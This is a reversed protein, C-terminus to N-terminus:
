TGFNQKLIMFDDLDVDGDGDFDGEARTMGTLGFHQKLAAFDDLDVDGDGDADGPQLDSGAGPSPPAASWNLPGPGWTIGAARHLADGGGDASTPWPALDDYTVADEIIRPTYYPEDDPPTDPRQLELREGANNLRGDWGGVLRVSADIGYADRFAAVRSANDVKDPNFPLVVLREGAALITEPDFAYDVGKALRWDTLDVDAATRNHIELFEWDYPEPPGPNYMIESIVVGPLRPGANPGGLTLATMPYLEGTGDPWRGHSENNFAAGFEVHDVFRLLTGASDAAMLWVDEGHAGDLAFDTPLGSANFDYEDFVIYEGPALLTGDPIRFKRYTKWTDSLFWGSLDVTAASVNLLEISDTPDLDTHTLVENVVIDVVPGVGAAGPSGGYETSSRWADSDNPDIGFDARELSAGRGDARGPWNGGDSYTMTLFPLGAATMALTEGGNALLGDYEGAVPLGTGYRAEFAALNGVLVMREGAPLTTVASDAFDFTIGDSFAIFSLDVDDNGTNIIETFEFDDAVVDVGDPPAPPNYMIEAIALTPGGEPMFGAEVVASTTPSVMVVAKVMVTGTLTVPGTYLAASASTRPDTGDTTYIIIGMGNPNTMVLQFGPAYEGGYQNFEPADISPFLDVSRMQEIVYGTRQPLYQTLIRDRESAWEANRTWVYPAGQPDGERDNWEFMSDGWRASEGIIATDIEAARANFRAIGAAPSLPGDGLMLQQARDAWRRRFTANTILRRYMRVPGVDNRSDTNNWRTLVETSDPWRSAEDVGQGLAAESDWTHFTFPILPPGGAPNRRCFTYWNKRPFDQRNYAWLTIMYDIFQDVDLYQELAALEADSIPTVTSTGYGSSSCDFWRDLMYNYAIRNGEKLTGNYDCGGLTGKIVDYEDKNGGLHEAAFSDDPREIAEYLGWYVGNLYLHVFRGRVGVNGTARFADHLFIDRLYLSYEGTDNLWSIGLDSGRTADRLWSDGWNARLVITDYEDVDPDDFFPYNLKAPGYDGKFLIRFSQKDNVAPWRALEGMIRGAANVSFGEEWGDPDILEMSTPKEWFINSSARMISNPYMGGNPDWLDDPDFTLAVTPISTLATTMQPGYTTDYVVDPDMEYDAPRSRRDYSSSGSAGAYWTGPFDRGTQDDTQDLVDALFIYTSTVPEADMYGSKFAAARVVTTTAITIPAVYTTGHSFTPETGDLTYRITVDPTDCSLALAFPSDYFGHPVSFAVDDIYGLIGSNNPAGPTPATFYRLEVQQGGPNVSGILEPLILMDSSTTGSNLGHIALINEGAVLATRAASVDYDQFVVAETDPHWTTAGANYALPPTGDTYDAAVYQGNIYAVFGDDYKMRLTMSLVTAPDDITFPIRIWVSENVGKMVAEVDLGILSRYTEAEDYGVGTAGAMWGSDDYPRQMWVAEDAPGAPVQATAPAGGAVFTVDSASTVGLGYSVDEVQRPFEPGFEHAITIGDPFILALYEGDGSLRFNTHLEDGAVARDKGSAFVLLYDGAPITVSPFQWKDRNDAEDTLHWGGLNVAADTPNHIEIWDPYDEDEDALTADNLAMFESIYPGSPQGVAPDSAGVVVAILCLVVPSTLGCLTPVRQM